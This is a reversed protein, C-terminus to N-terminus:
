IIVYVETIGQTNRLPVSHLPNIDCWSKVRVVNSVAAAVAGHMVDDECARVGDAADWRLALQSKDICAYEESSEAVSELATASLELGMMPPGQSISGDHPSVIAAPPVLTGASSSASGRSAGLRKESNLDGEGNSTKEAAAVAALAAATVQEGSVNQETIEVDGLKSQVGGAEDMLGVFTIRQTKRPQGPAVHMPVAGGDTGFPGGAVGSVSTQLANCDETGPVDADGHTASASTHLPATEPVFSHNRHLAQTHLLLSPPTSPNSPIDLSAQM